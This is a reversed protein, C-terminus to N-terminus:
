RVAWGSETLRLYAHVQGVYSNWASLLAGEARDLATLARELDRELGAVERQTASADDEAADDLRERADHLRSELDAVNREELDLAREALALNEEAFGASTRAAAVDDPYALLFDALADRADDVRAQATEIADLTGDDILFEASLGVSWGPRRPGPYGISVDAGPVRRFVGISVSVDLDDNGYAGSLRVDRPVRFLSTTLANAEAEELAATRSAVAYLSATDPEPLEFRVPAYSPTGTMGHDAAEAVAGRHRYEAERLGLDARDFALQLAQLRATDIEGEDLAAAADDFRTRAASLARTQTWWAVHARLARLVGDREASALDSRARELDRQNRIPAVLSHRYSLTATAALDNSWSPEDDADLSGSYTVGPRLSLSYGFGDVIANASEAEAIAQQLDALSPDRHDLAAVQTVGQAVAVAALASLLSAVLARSLARARARQPQPPRANRSPTTTRARRRPM